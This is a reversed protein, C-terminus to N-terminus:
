RKMLIWSNNGLFRTFIFFSLFHHRGYKIAEIEAWIGDMWQTIHSDTTETFDRQRFSCILILVYSSHHLTIILSSRGREGHGSSLPWSGRQNSQCCLATSGCSTLTNLLQRTRRPAAEQCRETNGPQRNGEHNNEAAAPPFLLLHRTVRGEPLAKMLLPPPPPPSTRQGVDPQRWPSLRQTNSPNSNSLRLLLHVYIGVAAWWLFGM